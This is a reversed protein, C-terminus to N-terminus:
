LSQRNLRNKHEIEEIKNVNKKLYLRNDNISDVGTSDYGRYELKRLGQQVIPDATEKGVFGIIGCM